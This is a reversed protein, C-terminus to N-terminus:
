VETIIVKVNKEYNQSLLNLHLFLAEMFDYAREDSNQPLSLIIENENVAIDANVGIIETIGNACLEVASTVAACVIDRGSEAYGAHGRISFGVKRNNSCRFKATIM